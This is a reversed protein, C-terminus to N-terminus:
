SQSDIMSSKCRGEWLTGTSRRRGNFQGVYGRGLKQMLRAIARIQPPKALLHVQNDMLVTAHRRCVTDLLADRLLTLYRQRDDDDRFCPLRDNRRQEIPQPIGPLDLRLQRAMAQPDAPAHKVPLMRSRRAEHASTSTTQRCTFRIGNKTGVAGAPSVVTEGVEIM